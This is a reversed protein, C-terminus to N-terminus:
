RAAPRHAAGEPPHRHALRHASENDDFSPQGDYSLGSGTPDELRAAFFNWYAMEEPSLLADRSVIITARSLSSLVPGSRPGHAAM